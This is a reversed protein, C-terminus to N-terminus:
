FTSMSEESVDPDGVKDMASKIIQNDKPDLDMATLFASIAEQPRGLRKLVKGMAFHVAAERPASDRVKLLEALAEAPRHLASYISARQFRAQPNQPDLKFAQALTDLAQYAKGNAYQAIGLNCLLISSAPHLQMAREFHYEALDFKEQRHFIAGLGYWANYHRENVRLAQRFCVIAKDFDENAMYEYGCLTHIYTFNPDIQLARRFFVLATEHDKQLSFCNGVVCWTVPSLRNAALARQSLHSLEVEKKLHWYVTSLLELGDLRCPDKSQMLELCRQSEAFENLELHARGQQHLIWGTDQQRKSFRCLAQLAEKCRYQCVNQYFTAATEILQLVSRFADSNPMSNSPDFVNDEEMAAPATMDSFTTQKRKKKFLDNARVAIEHPSETTNLARLPPETPNWSSAPNQMNSDNGDIAHNSRDQDQHMRPASSHLFRTSSPPPRGPGVRATHPPPTNTEVTHSLNRMRVDSTDELDDDEDDDDGRQHIANIDVTSTNINMHSPRPAALLSLSSSAGSTVAGLNASRNRGLMLTSWDNNNGGDATSAASPTPHLSTPTEPARQVTGGIDGGLHVRSVSSPAIPTLGPTQMMLLSGISSSHATGGAAGRPLSSSVLLSGGHHDDVGAMVLSSSTSLIPTSSTVPTASFLRTGAKTVSFFGDADSGDGQPRDYMSKRSLQFPHLPHEDDEQAQNEEDYDDDDSDCEEPNDHRHGTSSRTTRSKPMADAVGTTTATTSTTTTARSSYYAGLEALAEMSTWLFPDLDLSAQFFPIARQKRNSRWFIKGLLCLGASGMPVLSSSSSLSLWNKPDCRGGIGTAKAGNKEQSLIQFMWDDFPALLVPVSLFPAAANKGNNNHTNNNSSGHQLQQQERFKARAKSLLCEEARSYDKLEYCCLAELYDMSQFVQSYDDESDGSERAKSKTKTTTTSTSASIGCCYIRQELAHRAAKYNGCRYHCLAWQYVAKPHSPFEAVCRESIWLANDLLHVQLSREILYLYLDLQEQQQKHQQQHEEAANNRNRSERRGDSFFPLVTSRESAAVAEAALSSSAPAATAVAATM